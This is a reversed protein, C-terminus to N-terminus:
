FIGRVPSMSDRSRHPYYCWYWLLTSWFYVFVLFFDFGFFYKLVSFSLGDLSIGFNAIYTIVTIVTTVTTVNTVTTATTVATVTTVNSSLIM